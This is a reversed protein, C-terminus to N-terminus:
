GFADDGAGLGLGLSAFRDELKSAPLRRDDPNRSNEDGGVDGRALLREFGDVFLGVGRMGREYTKDRKNHFEEEADGLDYTGDIMEPHHGTELSFMGPSDRTVGDFDGDGFSLNMNRLPRLPRDGEPLLVCAVRSATRSAPKGSVGLRNARPASPAESTERYACNTMVSDGIPEYFSTHPLHCPPQGSPAAQGNRFVAKGTLVRPQRTKHLFAMGQADDVSKKGPSRMAVCLRHQKNQNNTQASQERVAATVCEDVMTTGCQSMESGSAIPGRKLSSVTSPAIAAGRDGFGNQNQNQSQKDFLQRRTAVEATGSANGVLEDEDVTALGGHVAHETDLKITRPATFEVSFTTVVPSPEGRRDRLAEDNKQNEVSHKARAPARGDHTPIATFVLKGNTHPTHGDDGGRHGDPDTRLGVRPLPTHWQAHPDSVNSQRAAAHLPMNRKQGDGFAGGSHSDRFVRPQPTFKPADRRTTIPTVFAFSSSNVRTPVEAAATQSTLETAFPTRTENPRTLAPTFM